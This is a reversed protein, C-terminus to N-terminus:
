DEEKHRSSKPRNFWERLYGLLILYSVETMENTPVTTNAILESRTGNCITNGKGFYVIVACAVAMFCLLGFAWARRVTRKRRVSGIFRKKFEDPLHIGAEYAKFRESMVMDLEEDSM